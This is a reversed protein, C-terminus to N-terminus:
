TRVSLDRQMVIADVSEANERRYYGKRRGCTEYGCAEYLAIAPSNDAAVDLFAREAGGERAATQWASMVTRARGQRQYTPLTAITLLEAEPPLIQVLAFCCPDGFARVYPQSLLAAFETATWP